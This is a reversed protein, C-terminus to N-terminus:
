DAGFAFQNGLWILGIIPLSIFLIAGLTAADDFSIEEISDVDSMAVMRPPDYDAIAKGPSAYSYITLTSDSVTMRRVHLEEGDSLQLRIRKDYYEKKEIAQEKPVLTTSTCASLFLAATIASVGRIAARM